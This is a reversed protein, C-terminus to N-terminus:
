SEAAKRWINHFFLTLLMTSNQILKGFPNKSGGDASRVSSRFQNLETYNDVNTEARDLTPMSNYRVDAMKIKSREEDLFGDRSLKKEEVTLLRKFDSTAYKSSSRQIKDGDVSTLKSLSKVQQLGNDASKESKIKPPSPKKFVPDQPDPKAFLPESLLKQLSKEDPTRGLAAIMDGYDLEPAVASETSPDKKDM